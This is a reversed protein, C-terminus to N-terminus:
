IFVALFTFYIYVFVGAIIVGDIRDLFGGHGRLIKGFDKVGCARKIYSSVLDGIQCFVSVGLGIICYHVANLAVVSTIPEVGLFGANGLFMVAVGTILGGFLGGIAGSITKKPSISPCLKPGKLASGVFYAMGDSMACGGFTLIIAASRFAGLYSQSLLYIMFVMPYIMVFLTSIVNNITYKKSVMAYVICIIIMLSLVGFFSTIGGKGKGFAYHVLAYAGYGLIVNLVVMITLPKAFRNAVARCMEVSAFFMLLVIFVDYFIPSIYISMLIFFAYGILLLVGTISREKLHNFKKEEGAKNDKNKLDANDGDAAPINDEALPLDDPRNNNDKKEEDPTVENENPLNNKDEDQSM